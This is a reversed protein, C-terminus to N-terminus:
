EQPAAEGESGLHDAAKKASSELAEYAEVFGAKVDVWADGSADKLEGLKEAAREYQVKADATLEATKGDADSKWGALKEKWSAMKLESAAIFKDKEQAAYSLTTDVAEGVERKVDAGSVPAKVDEGASAEPTVVPPTPPVPPTNPPSQEKCGVCVVCVVCAAVTFISSNRYM